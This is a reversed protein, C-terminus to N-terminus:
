KLSFITFNENYKTRRLQLLKQCFKLLVYNLVSENILLAVITIICQTKIATLKKLQLKFLLLRIKEYYDLKKM